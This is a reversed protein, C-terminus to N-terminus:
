PALYVFQLCLDCSTRISFFYLLQLPLYLLFNRGHNIQSVQLISNSRRQSQRGLFWCVSTISLDQPQKLNFMIQMKKTSSIELAGSNRYKRQVHDQTEVNSSTPFTQPSSMIYKKVYPFFFLTIFFTTAMQMVLNSFQMNSIYYMPQNNKNRFIM